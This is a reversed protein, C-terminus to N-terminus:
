MEVISLFTGSAATELPVDRNAYISLRIVDGANFKYSKAPVSASIEGGTNLVGATQSFFSNPDTSNLMMRLVFAGAASAIDLLLAGSIQYIGARPITILGSTIIGIDDHTVGTFDLSVFSSPSLQINAGGSSSFYLSSTKKTTTNLLGGDVSDSDAFLLARFDSMPIRRVAGNALALVISDADLLTSVALKNALNQTAM